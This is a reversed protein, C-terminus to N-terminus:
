EKAVCYIAQDSRLYLRSESVAPSANFDTADSEFVNKAIPDFKDGPRYVFTGSRRTVVYIQGQVFVPSAYVPRGGKLGKVRQRYIIKGDAASSSNAIGKDDIWYFRGDHLLPTAVYSTSRNTWLRQSDTVDGQGGATVAFSGSVQYGGFGYVTQGDIIASPSVNGGTNTQAFWKLAGSAPRLGWLEGPVSIVIEDEGSELSVVRPTSFTLELLDADQRWVEKGSTKDIAILAKSEEAANVIVLNQHILLSAASGWQRSSSGKDIEYSWGKKGDVSIQHVGGKGFFVYVSEGDSAPTNSAYGHETIFGNHADEQYDVPYDVSWLSSGDYKNFCLVKRKAVSQAQLNGATNSISNSAAPVYSTVIVRGGVVIPSSSGSGPLKSKWLLNQTDGWFTAVAGTDDSGGSADRDDIAHAKADTGLFAAWDSPVLRSVVDTLRLKSAEADASDQSLEYADRGNRVGGEEGDDLVRETAQPSALAPRKGAPNTRLNFFIASAIGIIGLIILIKTKSKSM